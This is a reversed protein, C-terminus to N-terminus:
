PELVPPELHANIGSDIILDTQGYFLTKYRFIYIICIQWFIVVLM